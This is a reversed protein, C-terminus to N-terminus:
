ATTVNAILLGYYKGFGLQQINSSIVGLTEATLVRMGCGRM